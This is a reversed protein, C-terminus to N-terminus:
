SLPASEDCGPRSDVGFRATLGALAGTVVFPVAISVLTIMPATDSM